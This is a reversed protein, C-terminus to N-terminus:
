RAPIGPVPVFCAPLGELLRLTLVLRYGDDHGRDARTFKPPTASGAYATAPRSPAELKVSVLDGCGNLRVARAAEIGRGFGQLYEADGALSANIRGAERTAEDLRAQVGANVQEAKWAAHRALTMQYDAPYSERERGNYGTARRADEEAEFRGLIPALLAEIGAVDERSVLNRPLEVELELRCWAEDYLTFPGDRRPMLVPESLSLSVDLRTRKLDVKDVRTLEGSKFRLRGRGSVLRGNVRNDTYTGACDSYVEVSTVAFAGKLRAGLAEQLGGALVPTAAPLLLAAVLLRRRM